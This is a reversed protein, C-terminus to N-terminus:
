DERRDRERSYDDVRDHCTMRDYTGSEADCADHAADDWANDLMSMCGSLALAGAALAAGITIRALM